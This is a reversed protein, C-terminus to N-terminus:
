KGKPKVPAQRKRRVVSGATADLAAKWRPYQEMKELTFHGADGSEGMEGIWNMAEILAARLQAMKGKPANRKALRARREEIVKIEEPTLEM